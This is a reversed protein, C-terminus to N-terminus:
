FISNVLGSGVANGAGFGVGGAAAHALTNKLGGLKGEQKAPQEAPAPAAPAPTPAQQVASPLPPGYPYQPGPPPQYSAQYGSPTQYTDYTSYGMPPGQPPQYTPQSPFSPQNQSPYADRTQYPASPASSSPTQKEVYNSPFLGQRGNFRGTWWDSNTEAVIEIMDGARFSIDNSNRGDENFGWLARAQANRPRNSHPVAPPASILLSQTQQELALMSRDSATPIKALIDRGDAASIHNQSVLIEVNQRTQSVLYALLASSDM